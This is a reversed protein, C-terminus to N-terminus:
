GLIESVKVPEGREISRYAALGVALAQRSDEGDPGLQIGTRVAQAFAKIQGRFAPIFRDPTEIHTPTKAGYVTAVTVGRMPLQGWFVTGESGLLEFRIDEGFRSNRSSDIQGIGGNKFRIQVTANDLDGAAKVGSDVVIGPQAFVEM